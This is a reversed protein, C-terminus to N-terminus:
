TAGIAPGTKASSRIRWCAISWSPGSTRPHISCSGRSKAPSPPTGILDMSARRLFTEDDALKAPRNAQPASKSVAVASPSSANASTTGPPTTGQPTTNASATNASEAGAMETDLLQDTRIAAQHANVAANVAANAAANAATPLWCLLALGAASGLFGSFGLFGWRITRLMM